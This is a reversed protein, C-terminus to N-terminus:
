TPRWKATSIMKWKVHDSRRVLDLCAGAYALVEVLLVPWVEFMLRSNIRVEQVASRFALWPKRSFIGEMSSAYTGFLRKIQMHGYYIRRRQALFDPISEPLRVLVKVKRSPLVPYGRRHICLDIYTDVNVIDTPVRDLLRRRICVFESNSYTRDDFSRLDFLSRLVVRRIFALGRPILGNNENEIIPWAGVQGANNEELEVALKRVAGEYPRTDAEILILLDSQCRELIRNIASGVGLRESEIVLEIRKDDAAFHQVIPVTSDTCGSCVVIVRTTDSLEQRKLVSELVYSINAQENHAYIGITLSNKGHHITTVDTV